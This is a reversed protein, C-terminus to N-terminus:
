RAQPAARFNAYVSVALAALSFKLISGLWDIGPTDGAGLGEVILGGLIGGALGCAITMVLSMNQRGPIVLRAVGGVIAGYIMGGIVAALIGTM